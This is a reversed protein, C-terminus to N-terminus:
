RNKELYDSGYWHWQEMTWGEPLGEEPLAPASPMANPVTIVDANSIVPNLRGDTNSGVNNTTNQRRKLILICGFIAFSIVVFLIVLISYNTPLYRSSDKPYADNQDAWGDLDSDPCGILEETSKGPEDPCDDSLNTGM